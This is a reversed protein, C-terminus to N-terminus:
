GPGKGIGGGYQRCYANVPVPALVALHVARHVPRRLAPATM